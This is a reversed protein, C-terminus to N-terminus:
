VVVLLLLIAMSDDCKANVKVEERPKTLLLVTM